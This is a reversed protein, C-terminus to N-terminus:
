KHKDLWRDFRQIEKQQDKIIQKAMARMNADKGSKLEMQAMDIAGQHHMKMMTAFDRDTDGTMKMSEMHKMMGKMSGQMDGGPAMGPMMSHKKDMAPKDAATQAFATSTGALVVFAGLTCIARCAAPLFREQKMNIEMNFANGSRIGNSDRGGNSLARLGRAPGPFKRWLLPDYASAKGGHALM